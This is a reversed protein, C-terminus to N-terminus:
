AVIVRVEGCSTSNGIEVIYRFRSVDAGLADSIGDFGAKIANLCGNSDIKRRDPPRFTIHLDILGGHNVNEGSLRAAYFASTRYKKTMRTKEALHIRDDVFLEKPPWSLSIM